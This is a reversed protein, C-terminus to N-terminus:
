NAVKQALAIERAIEQAIKFVDAEERVTLNSVNIVPMASPSGAGDQQRAQEATLVREGEHLYAPFDNYPVRNLGWAFGGTGGGMVVVNVKPSVDLSRIASSIVAAGSSVSTSVSSAGTNVGTVVSSSGTSVSERMGSVSEPIAALPERMSTLGEPIAALPEQIGSMSEPITGMTEQIGSMSDPITSLSDQMGSMSDPITSMSEQLGSMSDPIAAFSELAGELGMSLTDNLSDARDVTSESNVALAQELVAAINEDATNEARGADTGAYLDQALGAMTAEIARYGEGALTDGREYRDDNALKRLHLGELLKANEQSLSGGMAETIATTDGSMVADRVGQTVAERTNDKTAQAEGIRSYMEQMAQGGEGEIWANERELGPLRGEKYGDYMAASQSTKLEENKDLQGQYTQSMKDMTGYFNEQMNDLILQVVEDGLMSDKDSLKARADGVSMDWEEAIWDYVNLGRDSLMDLDVANTKQNAKMRSLSKAIEMMDQSSGGVGAVADGIIQANELIYDQNFKGNLLRTSLATLDQEGFPTNSAVGGIDSIMKNAAEESGLQNALKIRSQDRFLSLDKGSAMVDPVIQQGQDYQDQVIGRFIDDKREEEKLDANVSGMIGGALFGIGAGVATGVGPAIATGIAAGMSAGSTMGGVVEDMREAYNSGFRSRSKSSLANTAFDGLMQIGGQAAMAKLLVSGGDMLGGLGGGLSDTSGPSISGDLSAAGGDARNDLKSWASDYDKVGQTAKRLRQDTDSLNDRLQNAGTLNIDASDFLSQFEEFGEGADAFASRLSELEQQADDFNIRANMLNEVTDGFDEASSDAEEFAEAAEQVSRAAEDMRVNATGLRSFAAELSDSEQKAEKMAATVKKIDGDIAKMTSNNQELRGMNLALGQKIQEEEISGPEAKKLEKKLSSINNKIGETDVKLSIKQENLKDLHQGLDQLENALERASKGARSLAPSLEDRGRILVLAEAM